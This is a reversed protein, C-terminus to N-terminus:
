VGHHRRAAFTAGGARILKMWAPELMVLECGCPIEYRPLSASSIVFSKAALHALQGFFPPFCRTEFAGGPPPERRHLFLKQAWGEVKVEQRHQKDVVAAKMVENAAIAQAVPQAM